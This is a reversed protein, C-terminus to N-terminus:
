PLNAHKQLFIPNPTVPSGGPQKLPLSFRPLCFVAKRGDDSPILFGKQHCPARVFSNSAISLQRCSRKRFKTSREAVSRHPSVLLGLRHSTRNPRAHHRSFLSAFPVCPM